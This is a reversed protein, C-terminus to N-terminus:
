QRPFELGEPWHDLKIVPHTVNQDLWEDFLNWTTFGDSSEPELLQFALRGLQQQSPVILTGEPLSFSGKRFSGAISRIRHGQYKAGATWTSDVKFSEGSVSITVTLKAFTVGNLELRDAIGTAPDRVAYAVPVNAPKDGVFRTYDPLMRAKTKPVRRYLPRGSYPNTEEEIEGMLVEVVPPDDPFDATVAMQSGVPPPKDAGAVLERLRDDNRQAHDLVAKVFQYTSRIREEFTAYAYAESLVALRNRLGVYNTLFRPRYDFTYWGPSRNSGRRPLNGYHYVHMGFREKMRQTVEPLMTSRLYATLGPDTNPHLPPAYTLHYAHRTGNTTHLDLVLHPDMDRLLRVLARTEPADIKILDRNLDYGEATTRQGMGATPGHQFPRNDLTVKENGDVNYLPLFAVTLSDAWPGANNTAIDRLLWLVTEKGCAEGPHIGGIVLVRLRDIDSWESPNETGHTGFAAVPMARGEYSYGANVVVAAPVSAAIRNVYAVVDAYRSTERYDTREPRTSWDQAWASHVSLVFSLLIPGAISRM